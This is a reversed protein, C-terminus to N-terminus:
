KLWINGKSRVTVAEVVDHYSPVDSAVMYLCPKHKNNFTSDMFIHLLFDAMASQLIVCLAYM